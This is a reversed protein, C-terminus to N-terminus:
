DWKAVTSHSKKNPLDSFQDPKHSGVVRNAIGLLHYQHFLNVKFYFSKITTSNKSRAYTLVNFNFKIGASAELQTPM